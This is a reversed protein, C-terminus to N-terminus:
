DDKAFMVLRGDWEGVPLLDIQVQIRLDDDSGFAVGVKMWATREDKTTKNIFPKPWMVDYRTCRGAM